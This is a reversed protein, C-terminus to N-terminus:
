RPDRGAGPPQAHGGGDGGHGPRPLPLCLHEPTRFVRRLADRTEDMLRLFEPDLHGVTPRATALRVRASVESPGPGLLVREPPHFSQM